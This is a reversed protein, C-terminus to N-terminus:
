YFLVEDLVLNKIELLCSVVNLVNNSVVVCFWFMNIDFGFGFSDFYNEVWLMDKLM